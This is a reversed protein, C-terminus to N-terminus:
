FQWWHSWTANGNVQVPALPPTWNAGVGGGIYGEYTNNKGQGGVGFDAQGVIGEGIEAGLGGSAGGNCNLQSVSRDSSGFVGGTVNAGASPGVNVGGSIGVALSGNPLHVVCIAAHFGGFLQVEGSICGGVTAAKAIAKAAGSLANQVNTVVGCGPLWWPCTIMGTPDTNNVPDDGVYQYPQGTVSM